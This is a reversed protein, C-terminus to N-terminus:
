GKDNRQAFDLNRIIDRIESAPYDAAVLAAVVAGASTGAVNQWQYGFNEEAELLAGAHAIGRVGM